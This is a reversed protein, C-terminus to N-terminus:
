KPIRGVIPHYHFIMGNEDRESCSRLCCHPYGPLKGEEIKIDFLYDQERQYGSLDFLILNNIYGPLLIFVNEFPQKDNLLKIMKDIFIDLVRSYHYSTIESKQYIEKFFLINPETCIILLSTNQTSYYGRELKNTIASYIDSFFKELTISYDYSSKIQKYMMITEASTGFTIEFGRNAIVWDPENQKPDGRTIRDWDYGLAVSIINRGLDESISVDGNKTSASGFFDPPIYLDIDFRM